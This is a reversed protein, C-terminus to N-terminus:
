VGFKLKYTIHKYFKPRLPTNQGKVRFISFHYSLSLSNFTGSQYIQKKRNSGKPDQSKASIVREKTTAPNCVAALLRSHLLLKIKYTPPIEQQQLLTMNSNISRTCSSVNNNESDWKKGQILLKQKNLATFQLFINTRYPKSSLFNTHQQIFIIKISLLQAAVRGTCESMNLRLLEEKTPTESVFAVCCRLQHTTNKLVYDWCSWLCLCVSINSTM